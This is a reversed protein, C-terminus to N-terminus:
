EKVELEEIYVSTIGSWALQEKTMTNHQEAAEKTTYLEQLEDQEVGEAYFSYYVGYVKM